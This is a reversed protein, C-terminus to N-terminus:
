NLGLENKPHIVKRFRGCIFDVYQFIPVIELNCAYEERDNGKKSECRDISKIM